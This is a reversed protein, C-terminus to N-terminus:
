ILKKKLNDFEANKFDGDSSNQIVMATEYCELIVNRIDSIVDKVYEMGDSYFESYPDFDLPKLDPGVMWMKQIFDYCGISMLDQYPNVQFYIEIPHNGINYSNPNDMKFHEEFDRRAVKNLDDSNGENLGDFSMHVDIDSDESYQNSTISGTIRVSVNKLGFKRIEYDVITQIKTQAEDTLVFKGSDDAKWVAPDLGDKPTDLISELEIM